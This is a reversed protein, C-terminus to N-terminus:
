LTKLDKGCDCCFLSGQKRRELHKSRDCSRIAGAKFKEGCNPCYSVPPNSKGHNMNRCNKKVQSM